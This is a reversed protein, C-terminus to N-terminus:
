NEEQEEEEEELITKIEQILESAEEHLYKQLLLTALIESSLNKPSYCFEEAIELSERLSNDYDKLFDMAVSYYIIETQYILTEIEERVEEIGEPEHNFIDYFSIKSSLLTYNEFAEKIRNKQIETFM